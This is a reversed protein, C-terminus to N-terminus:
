HTGKPAKGVTAPDLGMSRLEGALYERWQKLAEDYHTRQTEEDVHSFSLWGTAAEGNIVAVVQNCRCYYYLGNLASTRQTQHCDECIGPPRGLEDLKAQLWDAPVPRLGPTFQDDNSM